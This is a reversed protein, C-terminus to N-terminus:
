NIDKSSEDSFKEYRNWGGPKQLNWSSEQDTKIKKTPLNTLVIKLAFHDTPILKKKGKRMSVRAPTIKRESDVVLSSVHPLLGASVM